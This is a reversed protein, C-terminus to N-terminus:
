KTHLVQRGAYTGCNACARHPLKPKKCQPCTVSAASTVSAFWQAKRSRTRTRPKKRKPVPM